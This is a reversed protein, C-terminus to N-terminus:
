PRRQEFYDVVPRGQNVLVDADYPDLGYTSELRTRLAAPLEGLSARVAAVEERSVRM